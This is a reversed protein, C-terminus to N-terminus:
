QAPWIQPAEAANTDVKYTGSRAEAPFRLCSYSRDTLLTEIFCGQDVAGAVVACGAAQGICAPDRPCSVTQSRSCTPGLVHLHELCHSDWRAVHGAEGASGQSACVSIIRYGNQSKNKNTRRLM